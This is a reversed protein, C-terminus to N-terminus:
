HLLGRTGPPVKKTAQMMNVYSGRLVNVSGDPKAQFYPLLLNWEMTKGTTKEIWFFQNTIEVGRFFIRFDTPIIRGLMHFTMFNWWPSPGLDHAGGMQMQKAGSLSYVLVM